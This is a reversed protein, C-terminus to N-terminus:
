FIFYHNNYINFRSYFRFSLLLPVSTSMHCLTWEEQGATWYLRAYFKVLVACLMLLCTLIAFLSVFLLLIFLSLPPPYPFCASAPVTASSAAGPAAYVGRGAGLWGHGTCDLNMVYYFDCSVTLVIQQRTSVRWSSFWQWYNCWLPLLLILLSLPQRPRGTSSPPLTGCFRGSRPSGYRTATDSDNVIFKNHCITM